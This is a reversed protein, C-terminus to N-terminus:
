ILRCKNKPITNYKQFQFIFVFYIYGILPLHSKYGNFSAPSIDGLAQNNGKHKFHAYTTCKLMSAMQNVTGM